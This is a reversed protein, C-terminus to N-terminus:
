FDKEKVYERLLYRYTRNKHNIYGTNLITPSPIGKNKYLNTILEEKDAKWWTKADTFITILQDANMPNASFIRYNQNSIGSAILKVKKHKTIKPIRKLEFDM